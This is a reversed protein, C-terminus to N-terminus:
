GGRGCQPLFRSDRAPSRTSDQAVIRVRATDESGRGPALPTENSGRGLNRETAAIPVIPWSLFSRPSRFRADLSLAAPLDHRSIQNPSDPWKAAYKRTDFPH